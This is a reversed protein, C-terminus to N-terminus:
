HPSAGEIEQMLGIPDDPWDIDISRIRDVSERLGDKHVPAFDTITFAEVAWRGDSRRCWMGSGNVKVRQLLFAKLKNGIEQTAECLAEGYADTSILVKVVGGKDASVCRLDGTFSACDRVRHLAVTVLLGSTISLPGSWRLRLSQARM